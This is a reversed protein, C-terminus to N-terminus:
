VSWGDRRAQERATLFAQPLNEDLYSLSVPRREPAPPPEPAPRNETPTGAPGYTYDVIALLRAMADVAAPPLAAHGILDLLRKADAQALEIEELTIPEREDILHKM